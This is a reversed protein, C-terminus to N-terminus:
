QKSFLIKNESLLKTNTRYILFLYIFGILLVTVAIGALGWIKILILNLIISLVGIFIKPFLYRKPKNLAMGLFVMSQGTYFTGLGISIVPLLYWYGAFSPNSVLIIIEKGLVAAIIFTIVSIAIVGYINIKIYKYGVTNSVKDNLDSFQNFIIPSLFEGFLNSPVAIFANLISTMLAYIGVERTSLFEAIIWKDGNLQLWGAFGWIAFPISYNLVLKIIQRRRNRTVSTGSKVLKAAFRKFLYIKISFFCLSIVAIGALVFKLNLVADLILAILFLASISKEAM